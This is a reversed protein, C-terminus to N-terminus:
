KLKLRLPWEPILKWRLIQCANKKNSTNIFLNSIRLIELLESAKTTYSCEVDGVNELLLLQNSDLQDMNTEQPLELSDGQNDIQQSNLTITKGVYDIIVRNKLFDRGIVIQRPARNVVLLEIPYKKMDNKKFAIEVKVIGLTKLSLKDFSIITSVQSTNLQLGLIDLADKRTFSRVAGTDIM